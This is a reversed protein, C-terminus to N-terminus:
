LNRQDDNIIDMYIEYDEPIWKKLIERSVDHSHQKYIRHKPNYGIGIGQRGPLGKIGVYLSENDDIFIFERGSRKVKGWLQFDLYNDTSNLLEEFESLFSKRFATQALSAHRMNRHRYYGGSFLHYYKARGIGVIEHEDLKASMTEIYKPAYYDDDEIIIIKDGRILPLATKLNLLLTHHPDGPQPERRMYQMSCIFPKTPMRGDDIVIWQDPQLTQKRIWNQCLAFALSRDGTPTILTLSETM